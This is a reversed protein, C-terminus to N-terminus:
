RTDRNARQKVGPPPGYKGALFDWAGWLAYFFRLAKQDQYLLINRLTRHFYFYMRGKTYAPFHRRYRSWIRFNNRTITYIRLPPHVTVHIKKGRVEPYIARGIEHKMYIFDFQVIRWGALKARLCYDHDVTDIFLGEDFGGLGQFIALNLLTGSTIVTEPESFSNWALAGQEKEKWHSPALAACTEKGPLGAVAGLFTLCMEKEFSSDQDMTLLWEYGEKLAEAAGLNLAAALGKNEKQPLYVFRKQQLFDPPLKSPEPSNDILYVTKFYPAYARINHYVSEDPHFLVVAVAAHPLVFSSNTECM